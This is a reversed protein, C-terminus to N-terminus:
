TLMEDLIHMYKEKTKNDKKEPITRKMDTLFSFSFPVFQELKHLYDESFYESSDAISMYILQYCNSLLLNKFTENPAKYLHMIYYIFHFMKNVLEEEAKYHLDVTFLTKGGKDYDEKIDQLDDALQLFIGFSLYFRMDNESMNNNVFYYDILVSIGGKYLSIDLREEWNLFSENDQQKLSNEQAELMLLLLSYIDACSERPYLNEIEQLLQCTKQQHLTTPNVLQGKIKNRILKNYKSKESFSYNPNDIYNDTFPYLMSYGFCAKNIGSPTGNLQKFMAYVIYNRLAQGIGEFTLDPSFNRVLSLFETLEKQLALLEHNELYSHINLITENYLIDEILLYTEKKWKKRGIIFGPFTKLQKQFDNSITAVYQENQSKIENSVVSLFDPFSSSVKLWDHKITTFCYEKLKNPELPLRRNDKKNRVTFVAKIYKLMLPFSFWNKIQQIKLM